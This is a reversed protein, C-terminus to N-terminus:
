GASWALALTTVEHGRATLAAAAEALTTGTTRVDDILLVTTPEVSAAQFAGRLNALRAARDLGAQSRTARERRLWGVHLRAGLEAAVPRALLAAPNFGRARLKSPHLPVPVVARVAGSYPQAAVALREGLPVALWGAGAYKFRRIADAFPGQYLWGAASRSPPSMGPPTPELLPECADCFTAAAVDPVPYDCGPCRNPALLSLFGQPISGQM